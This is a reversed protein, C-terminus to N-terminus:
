CNPVPRGAVVAALRDLAESLTAVRVLELGAPRNRKAAPCNDTPTLFVTAGAHRAAVVKQAIGGIPGVKGADNITGTGAIHRGGTLAGPTLTDIIGLTFMFGASPGGVDKLNIAVTFSPNPRESTSIGVIPRNPNQPDRVTSVTVHRVSGARRIDLRVSQGPIRRGILDRLSNASSIPTGEVATIVDGARLRGAAPTGKAVGAVVVENRFPLKLATLAATIAQQQSDVMDQTNQQEVVQESEGPPYIVDQPLVAAHPDFWGVVAQALTLEGSPSGRVGVTTLDLRGSTPYTTRGKVTIIPTGDSRKGLTNTVPGPVLEVYPVRLTLGVLLLIFAVLSASLLAPRRSM